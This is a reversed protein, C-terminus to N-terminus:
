DDDRMPPLTSAHFTAVNAVERVWKMSSPDDARFHLLGDLEVETLDYSWRLLEAAITAVIAIVAGDSTDDDALAEVLEDVETGYGLRSVTGVAKQDKFVAKVHWGPRPILWAEGNALVVPHCRDAPVRPDPRRKDFELVFPGRVPVLM